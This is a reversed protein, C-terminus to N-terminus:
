NNSAITASSYAGDPDCDVLVSGAELVVGNSSVEYSHINDPRGTVARVSQGHALATTSRNPVNDFRIVYPKDQNSDNVFQFLLYGNGFRCANIIQVEPTAIQPPSTDCAVNITPTPVDVPLGDRTITLPLPGDQRGTYPMRWWDGPAVELARASLTGLEIRYLASETGTNVINVDVRGNGSLCSSAVTVENVPQIGAAEVAVAATAAMAVAAIIVGALRALRSVFGPQSVERDVNSYM